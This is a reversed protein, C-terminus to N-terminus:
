RANAKGIAYDTYFEAAYDAAEQGAKTAEAMFPRAETGPHVFRRFIRAGNVMMPVTRMETAPKTGNELFRTAGGSQVFGSLGNIQAEASRRTEGSQDKYLTTGKVSKVAADTAARLTLVAAQHVGALLVQLGERTDRTSLKATM